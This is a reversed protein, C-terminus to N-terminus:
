SRCGSPNFETQNNTQEDWPVIVTGSQIVVLGYGISVVDPVNSELLLGHNKRGQSQFPMLPERDATLQTNPHKPTMSPHLVVNIMRHDPVTQGLAPHSSPQISPQKAKAPQLQLPEDFTGHQLLKSTANSAKKSNSVQTFMMHTHLTFPYTSNGRHNGNKSFHCSVKSYLPYILELLRCLLEGSSKLYGEIKFAM